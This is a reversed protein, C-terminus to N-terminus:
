CIFISLLVSVVVNMGIASLLGYRVDFSAFDLVCLPVVLGARM